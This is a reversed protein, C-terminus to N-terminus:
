RGLRASNARKLLRTFFLRVESLGCPVSSLTRQEGACAMEGSRCARNTHERALFNSTIVLCECASETAKLRKWLEGAAAEASGQVADDGLKSAIKLSAFIPLFQPLRNASM